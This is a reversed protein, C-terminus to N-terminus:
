VRLSGGHTSFISSMLFGSPTSAHSVISLSSRFTHSISMTSRTSSIRSLSGSLHPFELTIVGNPRASAGNWSHLRQSRPGAGVRTASSSTPPKGRLDSASRRKLGFFEVLTPINKRRAADAVNAAPEIGTVSIGLPLFHQLLYGDNSAIEFVQEEARPRAPWHDYRLVDHMSSGRRRTRRFYGYETFIHEAQRIRAVAGSLLRWV